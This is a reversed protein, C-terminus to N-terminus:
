KISVTLLYNFRKEGIREISQVTHKKGQYVVKWLANIDMNNMRVKMQYTDEQKLQSQEFSRRGGKKVVEAYVHSTSVKEDVMNGNDARTQRWEELAIRRSNGIGM